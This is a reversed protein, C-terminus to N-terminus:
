SKKSPHNFNMYNYYHACIFSSMCLNGFRYLLDIGTSHDIVIGIVNMISIFACIIFVFRVFTLKM